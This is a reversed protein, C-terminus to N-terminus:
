PQTYSLANLGTVVGLTVQKPFDTNIETKVVSGYTYPCLQRSVSSGLLTSSDLEAVAQVTEYSVSVSCDCLFQSGDYYWNYGMIDRIRSMDYGLQELAAVTDSDGPVVFQMDVTYDVNEDPVASPEAPKEEEEAAAVTVQCEAIYLDDQITVVMRVTATGEGVAYLKGNNDVEVVADDSSFWEVPLGEPQVSFSMQKSEGQRMSVEMPSFDITPEGQVTVRCFSTYEQGDLTFSATVVATGVGLGEIEGYRNVSVVGTDDSHWDVKQGSPSVSARLTDKEGLWITLKTTSLEVGPSEVTVRCRKEYSKGGFTMRAAIDAHGSSIATVRGKEDVQVVGTDSSGWTVEADSPSTSATLYETDGISMSISTTPLSLSVERVTVYCRESYSQDGYSFRAEITASGPGVATVYGDKVKAVANNDSYWAVDVGSPSTSAELDFGSGMYITKSYDSLTLGASVVRVTSSATYTRGGQAFQATIKAQGSGTGKVTGNTVSVVSGNSSSWSISTGAPAGSLTMSYREGKFLTFESPSLSLTYDQINVACTVTKDGSSVTISASGKGVATVAGDYVTVVNTNSSSWTYYGNGGGVVLTTTDGVFLSLMSRNLYLEPIVVPAPTAYSPTNTNTNKDAKNKDKQGTKGAQEKQAQQQALVAPDPGKSVYVTVPDGQKLADGAGVSAYVVIGEAVDSSFMEEISVVAGLQQLMDAAEAQTYFSVDPMTNAEIVPEAAASIYLSVRTEKEVVEGAGVSQRLVMNAPIVDSAERGGVVVALDQAEMRDQAVGVSYNIVSPVRSMNGGLIFTDLLHSEFGIKGTLLLAFLAAIVAASCPITIKAWLPWKVLDIAKIKGMVRQVPDESTLEEFFTQATPTRDEIQVNMANLIANEVDQGIKCNKSPPILIDKKKTEGYARRELADPPRIGTIMRYLVAGLAYVDTHPGQDGRSRYQEEPSYGPKIIVTLSRSHSTTAYRAAGFDILKVKDDKTIMINDPAIDRHIIGQAHIAELSTIVPLLMEIAREVPVKGERELYATLTEGDLYEMIIYATNNESFADFVRVIGAENQFQALRKAEDVFKSLGDQFQETKNGGFVTIHTQGSARTAFESPLYEKIAVRQQLTNDWGIYTVGFGGYGIAKGVLYRGALMTGPEMHLPNDVGTGLEYGCYPCLGYEHDFEAMCGLCRTKM